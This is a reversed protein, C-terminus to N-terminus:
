DHSHQFRRRSKKGFTYNIRGLATVQDDASFEVAIQCYIGFVNRDARHTIGVWEIESVLKRLLQSL